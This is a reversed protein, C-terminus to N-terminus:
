GKAARNNATREAERRAILLDWCVRRVYPPTAELDAWSWGYAIM